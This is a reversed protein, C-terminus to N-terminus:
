SAPEASLTLLPRLLFSRMGIVGEGGDSSSLGVWILESDSLHKERTEFNISTVNDAEDM